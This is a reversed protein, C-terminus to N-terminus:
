NYLESLYEVQKRKEKGLTQKRLITASSAALLNESAVEFEADIVKNAQGLLTNNNYEEWVQTRKEMIQLRRNVRGELRSAKNAYGVMALFTDAANKDLSGQHKLNLKCLDKHFTALQIDSKMLSAALKLMEPLMKANSKIVDVGQRFAKIKDPSLDTLSVNGLDIPLNYQQSLATLKKAIVAPICTSASSSTNSGATFTPINLRSQTNQQDTTKQQQKKAMM